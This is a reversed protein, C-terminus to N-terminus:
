DAILDKVPIELAKAIAGVIAPTTKDSKTCRRVSQYSCKARKALDSPGMCKEAMAIFLKKEDVRM